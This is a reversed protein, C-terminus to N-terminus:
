VALDARIQLESASFYTLSDLQLRAEALSMQDQTPDNQTRAGVRAEAFGHLETDLAQASSILFLSLVSHKFVRKALPCLSCSAKRESQQKRIM